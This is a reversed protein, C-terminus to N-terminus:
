SGSRERDRAYRWLHELARVARFSSPYCYRGSARVARPGANDPDAVALETATLVPKGTRDSVEAAAMAFREDQREHYAVIRELGHDPYFRGERMLRAQNSQIGLGLYVVADVDPHCAVLELVEPITDRTEAGALDIPNNRSWRPPLKADIAARLDDPLPLLELESRTIADATVVGWGGATTLVAVRPGRPLPQTAFTAAADFAEDVSAARTIRAQRCMGEFVRDDSALAGTHSAAARQGGSTTGGKMLV